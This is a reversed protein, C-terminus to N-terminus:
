RNRGSRRLWIRGSRRHCTAETTGCRRMPGPSDADPKAPFYACTAPGSTLVDPQLFVRFPLHSNATANAQTPHLLGGKTSMTASKQWASEMNRRELFNTATSRATHNGNKAPLASAAEITICDMFPSQWPACCTACGECCTEAECWCM